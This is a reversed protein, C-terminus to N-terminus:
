WGWVYEFRAFVQTFSPYDTMETVLMHQRLSVGLAWSRNIRYDLGLALIADLLIRTGAVTGGNLGVPGAEVAGWPVWRLVDLVYAVGAAGGWMTTPRTQPTSSDGTEKLAVVSWGADAMLNFADSLGYTYHLGFSAGVDPSGKDAVVLVAPGVDLGVAHEREVAGASAPLLLVALGAAVGVRM